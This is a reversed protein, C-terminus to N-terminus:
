DTASAGGAGANHQQRRKRDRGNLAAAPVAIIGVFLVSAVTGWVWDWAASNTAAVLALLNPM